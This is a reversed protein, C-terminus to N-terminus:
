AKVAEPEDLDLVEVEHAESEAPVHGTPQAKPAPAGDRKAAAKIEEWTDGYRSRRFGGFLIVM